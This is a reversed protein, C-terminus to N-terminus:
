DTKNNNDCYQNSAWQTIRKYNKGKNQQWKEKAYVTPRRKTILLQQLGCWVTCLWQGVKRSIFTDLMPACMITSNAEKVILHQSGFSHGSFSWGPITNSKNNLWFPSTINTTIITLSPSPPSRPIVPRLLNLSDFDPNELQHTSSFKSM